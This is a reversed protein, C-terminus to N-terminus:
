EESREVEVPTTLVSVAPKTTDSPQLSAGTILAEFFIVAVGNPPIDGITLSMPVTNATPVTNAPPPSTSGCAILIICSALGFALCLNRWMPSGGARSCSQGPCGGAPVYLAPM